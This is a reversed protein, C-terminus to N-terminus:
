SLSIGGGRFIGWEFFEADKMYIQASKFFFIYTAFSAYKKKNVPSKAGEVGGTGEGPSRGQVGYAKSNPVRM